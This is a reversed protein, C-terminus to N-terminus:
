PLRAKMTRYAERRRAPSALSRVMLEWRWFRRQVRVMFLTNMSLDFM